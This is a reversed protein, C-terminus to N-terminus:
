RAAHAAQPAMGCLVVWDMSHWEQGARWEMWNLNAQRQKMRLNIPSNKEKRKSERRPAGHGSAWLRSALGVLLSFLGAESAGENRWSISSIAPESVWRGKLSRENKERSVPRAAFCCSWWSWKKEWEWLSFFLTSPNVAAAKYTEAREAVSIFKM